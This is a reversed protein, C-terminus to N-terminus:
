GGERRPEQLPWSRRTAPLAHKTDRVCIARCSGSPAAVMNLRATLCASNKAMSPTWHVRCLPTQPRRGNSVMENGIGIAPRNTGRKSMISSKGPTKQTGPCIRPASAVMLRWLHHNAPRTAPISGEGGVGRGFTSPLSSSTAKASQWKPLGGRSARASGEQKPLRERGSRGGGRAM